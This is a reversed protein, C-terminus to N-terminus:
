ADEDGIKEIIIKVKGKWIRKTMIVSMHNSDVHEFYTEYREAHLYNSGDGIAIIVEKKNEM